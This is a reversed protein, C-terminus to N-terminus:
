HLKPVKRRKTVRAFTVFNLADCITVTGDLTGKENLM